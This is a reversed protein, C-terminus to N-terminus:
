WSVIGQLILEETLNPVQALQQEVIPRVKDELDASEEVDLSALVYAPDELPRDRFTVITVDCWNGTAKHIAESIRTAAVGYLKGTNDIPS